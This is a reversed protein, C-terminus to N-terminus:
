KGFVAVYEELTIGRRQIEAAAERGVYRYHWPEYSYGTLEEKGEPYRLVFGYEYAHAALWAAVPSSAFSSTTEGPTFVDIARGTQHESYGPKAAYQLAYEEGSEAMYSAFVEEQEDYGRYGSTVYLQYGDAQAARFMEEFAAYTEIEMREGVSGYSADQEVLEVEFDHDLYYYKNVLLLNGNELKAAETETYYDRYRGANVRVVIDEATLDPMETAMAFYRERRQSLYYESYLIEVKRETYEINADYDPHNVLKVTLSPAFDYKQQVQIYDALKEVRFDAPAEREELLQVLEPLYETELVPHLEKRELKSTIANIEEANYGLNSLKRQTSTALLYFGVAFIIAAAIGFGIIRRRKSMMHMIVIIENYGIQACFEM